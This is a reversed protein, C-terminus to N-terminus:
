RKRSNAVRSNSMLFVESQPVITSLVKFALDKERNIDIKPDWEFDEDADQEEGITSRQM